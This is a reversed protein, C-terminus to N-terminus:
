DPRDTSLAAKPHKTILTIFQEVGEAMGAQRILLAAENTTYQRRLASDAYRKAEAELLKVLRPNAFIEKRLENLEQEPLM